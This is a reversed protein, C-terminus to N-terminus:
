SRTSPRTVRHCRLVGISRSSSVQRCWLLSIRRRWRTYPVGLIRLSLLYEVRGALHRRWTHLWSDCCPKPFILARQAELDFGFSDTDSTPLVVVEDVACFEQIHGAHGARPSIPDQFGLFRSMDDFNPWHVQLSNPLNDREQLSRSM